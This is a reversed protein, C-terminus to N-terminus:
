DPKKYRKNSAYEAEIASPHPRRRTTALQLNNDERIQQDLEMTTLTPRPPRGRRGLRHRRGLANRRRRLHAARRGARRAAKMARVWYSQREFSSRYLGDFDMELLFRSEAPLKDPDLEALKEIELLVDRRATLRLYGNTKDHLTFNRYVWQSHSIQILRSVLGKMWDTGNMRCSSSACYALQMEAIKVSVKGHLLEVWGIKDQSDAIQMLTPSMPGLRAFRKQGRMLLFKPLWYALEPETKDDQQLWKELLQVGEQFLRTRGDEPCKNLHTSTETVQQCNPCRRDLLNQITSMRERTACWGSAQKSLWLGYMDPKSSLTAELAEWHVQEFRDLSWGLGGKHKPRTYFAQAEVKGFSFRVEKSVDTTCKHGGVFVAVKELPLLQQGRDPLRAGEMSRLVASKALEDCDVNLQEELRLLHWPLVSDMHADVHEYEFQFALSQKLSRLARLLDGQKAGTKVRKRRQSSQNLAAINDCCAKGLATELHYYDIVALVLTHLAVLGLLEGRYASASKSVEFFSGKLFKRSRTCTIVWGAGSVNKARKRDFSGDTVMIATGNKFAEVLWVMDEDEGIVHEWMWVGGWSRLHEWFSISSPADHVLSPGPVLHQVSQDPLELVSTPQGTPSRAAAFRVRGYTQSGRTRRRGGLSHYYAIGDNEVKQLIDNTSDYYWKWSRHSKAVWTGLPSPLYFGPETYNTWFTNWYTWDSKSPAERPFTFQSCSVDDTKPLLMWQELQRGNATTGDSLFLLEMKLRCRNLSKLGEGSEGAAVFIDMMTVDHQRPLDLDPYDLYLEYGFYDLREWFTKFWCPTVLDHLLAYSCLLPNGRSGIELQLAELSARFKKGLTSPVGFHQVIMNLWCIMQEVPFSLLGVGGFARPLTRWGRKINRNVGLFPLMSREVGRLLGQAVRLPTALTALGYRMGPWLKFKYSVWAFRAPLHGNTTREVWVKVRKLVKEEIHKTDDGAPCSWVGLMERSEYVGLQQIPVMTGDPLPILLEQNVCAAYNWIGFENCEYDIMYWYCKEPKLAGGTSCLLHGWESVSEQMERFVSASDKLEPLYVVLDTDDVFLTGIFSILTGSLPSLMESGFGQRTYCHFLVSALMTWCAPAAGNGQCLGQLLLLGMALRDPGGMFTNSDGRATRQYFKMIQIPYLLATVAGVWGTIAILLLSMIIHNIRDYCNAADASTSAMPQRLQRSIDMTLKGDMKADEATSQKQSYQDDPVYGIDYLANMAEYGFAFKNFYNYDGEMLLIARLKNVLAVGAIKELMVQLGVGWRSPPCGCRAIVTIKQSLFASVKDSQIAAKYHGFHVGSVSSSTREKVQRWYWKFQAATIVFETGKSTRMELGLRAIENLVMTTTDDVDDPVPTNGSLFEEAFETDSLYGLKEVLSTGTVNASHALLFRKETVQQIETNMAEKETLEMTVGDVVKQVRSTAGLRPDDTAKNIVYWM